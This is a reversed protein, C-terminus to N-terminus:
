WGPRCSRTLFRLSFGRGTGEYGHTTTAFALRANRHALVLRQLSPVPLQAAEDVVVVAFRDPQDLLDPLAVFRAAEGAFRLVEAAAAESGATVVLEGEARGAFGRLALGLASSKGRGRDAVLAARSPTGATWREILRAVIQAQEATGESPRDAPGLVRPAPSAHRELVQEVHTAFRRGVEAETYPPVVLRPDPPPAGVGLRLLLAGGGFVLGHAQGLLDADLGRHGDLVVVDHARGLQGALANPRIAVFGRPAAASSIWAVSGEPLAATMAEVQERTQVESGRVIVLARPRLSTM